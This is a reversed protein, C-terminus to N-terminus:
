TLIRDIIINKTGDTSLDLSTAIEKLKDLNLKTLKKRNYTSNNIESINSVVEDDEVYINSSMNHSVIPIDDDTLHQKVNVSSEEETEVIHVHDNIDEEISCTKNDSIYTGTIIQCVNDNFIDNMITEADDMSIKEGGSDESLANQLELNEKKLSKIKNELIKNYCEIGHLKRWVYLVILLFLLFIIFYILFSREFCFM